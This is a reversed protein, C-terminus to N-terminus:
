VAFRNYCLEEMLVIKKVNNESIKVYPECIWRQYKKKESMM